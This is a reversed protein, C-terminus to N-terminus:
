LKIIKDIVSTTSLGKIFPIRVVKGGNEKVHSSGVIDKIKWDGGKVLVDPSLREILHEPTADKFIVVFDVFYLSSLILSRDHENNVPRSKGKLRRVSSDSNMGVVLIDGLSKAKRLYKIHGAHLIDFCGNTFVIRKGNSHLRKVIRNLADQSKIKNEM